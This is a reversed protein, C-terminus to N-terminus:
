VIHNKGNNYNKTETKYGLNWWEETQPLLHRWGFSDWRHGCAVICPSYDSRSILLHTTELAVTVQTTVDRLAWSICQTISWIIGTFHVLPFTEGKVFKPLLANTSSNRFRVMWDSFLTLMHLSKVIIVSEACNGSRPQPSFELSGNELKEEKYDREM